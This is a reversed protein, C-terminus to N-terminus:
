PISAPDVSNYVAGASLPYLFSLAVDAMESLRRLIILNDISVALRM